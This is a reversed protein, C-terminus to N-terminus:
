YWIRHLRSATDPLARATGLAIRQASWAAAAADAVDDPPLGGAVGPEDPPCVGAEESLRRRTMVGAWTKKPHALPQGAMSRFSVEPHVEYVRSDAEAALNAEFLRKRLGYAQISVGKQGQARCLMVAQAHSEADLVRRPPITFVSNRRQGVFVRAAQDAARAWEDDNPLGLPMDVTVVKCQAYAVLASAVDPHVSAGAFVGDSLRVGVWGHRYADLGAVEM